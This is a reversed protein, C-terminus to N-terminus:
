NPFIKNQHTKNLFILLCCRSCRQLLISIHQSAKFVPSQYFSGFLFTPFSKLISCPFSAARAWNGLQPSLFQSGKESSRIWPLLSKQESKGLLQGGLVSLTQAAKPTHHRGPSTCSSFHGFHQKPVGFPCWVARKLCPTVPNWVPLTEGARLPHAAGGSSCCCGSCLGRKGSSRPAFFTM